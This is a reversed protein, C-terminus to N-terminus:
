DGVPPPGTCTRVTLVGLLLTYLAVTIGNAKTSRTM